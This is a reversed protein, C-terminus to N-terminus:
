RELGTEFYQRCEGRRGSLSGWLTVRTQNALKFESAIIPEEECYKGCEDLEVVEVEGFEM